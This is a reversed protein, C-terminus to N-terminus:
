GEGESDDDTVDDPAPLHVTAVVGAVAAALGALQQLWQTLQDVRSAADAAVDPAVLPGGAIVLGAVVLVVYLARRAGRPMKAIRARIASM